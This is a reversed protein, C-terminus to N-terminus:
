RVGTGCTPDSAASLAASLLALATSFWASGGEEIGEEAAGVAAAMTPTKMPTSRLSRKPTAAVRWTSARAPKSSGGTGRNDFSILEFDATLLELFQPPWQIRGGGIGNILLLPTRGHGARGLREYEIAIDGIHALPIAFEEM